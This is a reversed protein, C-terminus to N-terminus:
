TWGDHRVSRAKLKCWSTESKGNLCPYYLRLKTSSVLTAQEITFRVHNRNWKKKQKNNTNSEILLDKRTHSHLIPLSQKTHGAVLIYFLLALSGNDRTARYPNAPMAYSCIHKLDNNNNVLSLSSSLFIDGQESKNMRVTSKHPSPSFRFRKQM